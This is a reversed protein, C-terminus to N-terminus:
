RRERLVSESLPEGPIEVPTDADDADELGTPLRSIIGTELLHQKFAAERQKTSTREVRAMSQDELVTLRVRHGALEDGKRAIEEWTGEIIRHEMEYQDEPATDM